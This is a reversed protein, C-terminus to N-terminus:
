AMAVKVHSGVIGEVATLQHVVLVRVLQDPLCDSPDRFYGSSRGGGKKHAANTKKDVRNGAHAPGHTELSSVPVRVLCAAAAGQGPCLFPCRDRQM